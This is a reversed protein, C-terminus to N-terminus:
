GVVKLFRRKGIKVSLCAGQPVNFLLDTVSQGDIKVGGQDLLKRYEGRSKVLGASIVIEALERSEGQKITFELIDDPVDRKSFVKEFADLALDAENKGHYLEAISHAVRKKAEMPHLKGEEIDTKLKKAEDMNLGSAYLAYNVILFDPISMVKGFKDAASDFVSIYNGLSKSMKQEGDLGILIPTLMCVQPEMGKERMLDRGALINFKQAPDGLEIDSNIVISDYGQMLPYCLEHLGIPLGKEFRYRYTEHAFAQALTMKSLLQLTAYLDFQDFWETQHRVETKKPDLLTFLQEMYKEGNLRVEEPSLQSRTEDKGSPDGIRATYDGFVLVGIHGLDQFQRMKKCPVMHGIHIDPRTPDIGLKVRLPRGKAVSRELKAMFDEEPVVEVISDTLIKFQEKANL